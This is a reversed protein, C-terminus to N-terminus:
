VKCHIFNVCKNKNSLVKIFPAGAGAQPHTINFNNTAFSNQLPKPFTFHYISNKVFQVFNAIIGINADSAKSHSFLFNWYCFTVGLSYQIGPGRIGLEFSDKRLLDPM